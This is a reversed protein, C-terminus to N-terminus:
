RREMIMGMGIYWFAPSNRLVKIINSHEKRQFIKFISKRKRPKYEGSYAGQRESSSM